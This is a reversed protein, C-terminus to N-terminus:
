KHFINSKNFPNNDLFSTYNNISNPQNITETPQPVIIEEEQSVQQETQNPVLPENFFNKFKM